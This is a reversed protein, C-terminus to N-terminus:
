RFRVNIQERTLNPSGEHMGLWEIVFTEDSNGEPFTYLAYYKGSDEITVETITDILKYNRYRYIKVVIDTPDIMIGDYDKLTCQTKITDGYLASVM